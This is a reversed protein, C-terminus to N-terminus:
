WAIVARCCGSSSTGPWPAGASNARKARVVLEFLKEIWGSHSLGGAEEMGLPPPM